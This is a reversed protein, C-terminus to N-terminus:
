LVSAVPEAPTPGPRRALREPEALPGTERGRRAPPFRLTFCSGEGLASEVAVSGGMAETLEKVLALGLGSGGASRARSNEARYFREWIRPLDAPAIGEGTDKVQLSVGDAEAQVLLAVIGGPPTHRVGNHALNQLAQELRCPDAFVASTERSVDAIVEVRGAQWALPAMTEAVRRVLAGTDVPECRVELKRVEARALTFLDDILTQLRITEQEMIQLDQRLTPPPTEDWHTRTSELYGRLTAIPTRLEHSVSAVLERRAKLLTAVADREEQLERMTRELDAAMANFDTQLRAIEDEGSVPVRIGYNGRRLAGAARALTEIRRTMRRAFLYSFLASPPLVLALAVGTFVTLALMVSLLYFPFGTSTLVDVGVVLVGLLAAGIVVVLLHAHTLAWRLRTRRMQNWRLWLRVGLRFMLFLALAGIFIAPLVKLLEQPYGLSEILLAPFSRTGERMVLTDRKLLLTTFAAILLLPMMVLGLAGAIAGEYLSKRWWSGGPLRLRLACWLICCPGDLILLSSVIQGYESPPYSFSMAFLGATLGLQFIFTEMVARVAGARLWPWRWATLFKAGAQVVASQRASLRIFRSREIWAFILLQVILWVVGGGFVLLEPLWHMAMM